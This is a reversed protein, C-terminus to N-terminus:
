DASRKIKSVFIKANVIQIGQYHKLELLHNDGSVIFDAKAELACALFKNDSLDKKIRDTKYRDRTVIFAKEKILDIISDEEGEYLFLAKRIHPKQLTARIEKLIDESVALEFFQSVWLEQIDFTHGEQTFLGSVFLNTDIVARLKKNKM